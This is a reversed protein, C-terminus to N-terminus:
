IDVYITPTTITAIMEIKGSVNMETLESNAPSGVSPKPVNSPEFTASRVSTNAITIKNEPLSCILILFLIKLWLLNYVM